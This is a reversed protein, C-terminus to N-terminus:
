AGTLHGRKKAKNLVDDLKEHLDSRHESLEMDFDNDEKIISLLEAMVADRKKADIKFYAKFIAEESKSLGHATIIEGISDENPKNFMEGDGTRLWSESVNFGRCVSLIHVDRIPRMGNEYHAYTSQPIGIKQSFESQTLGMEKRLEKLREKM